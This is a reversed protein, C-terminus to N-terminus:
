EAKLGEDKLYHVESCARLRAAAQEPTLDRQAEAMLEFGVLFKKVTASRLLPPAFHLHLHAYDADVEVESESTTIGLEAATPTPRQHLGMSYAFSCKFLNDYRKTLRNLVDALADREESSLSLLSHHHKKHPLVMAEFPWTAWWPVLAVFHENEVVIRSENHEAGREVASAHARLEQAAYNCLLCDAKHGPHESTVSQSQSRRRDAWIHMNRLESAPLTPVASLSWVQGHPHPNSCGMMTGKNEFIQVYEVGREAGRALYIRAWEDVIGRIDKSEMQAITLDHRPHFCVVDCRGTTREAQFLGDGGIYTGDGEVGEGDLPMVSAFDNEFVWTGEYKENM